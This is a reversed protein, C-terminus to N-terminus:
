ASVVSGLHVTGAVIESAPARAMLQEYLAVLKRATPLAERGAESLVVTKGEREFLPRRLDAELARMQQGVAAQTLAVRQAAAAFSGQDAVSLFTKLIRISSM